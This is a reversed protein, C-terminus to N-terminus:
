RHLRGEVLHRLALHREPGFPVDLDDITIRSVMKADRETSVPSDIVL